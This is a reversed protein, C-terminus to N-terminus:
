RYPHQPKMPRKFIFRSPNTTAAVLEWGNSGLINMADEIKHIFTTLGEAHGALRALDDGTVCRYEWQTM